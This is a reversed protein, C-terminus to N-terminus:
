ELKSFINSSDQFASALLLFQSAARDQLVSLLLYFTLCELGFLSVALLHM